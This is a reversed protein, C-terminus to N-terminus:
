IFYCMCYINEDNEIIKKNSRILKLIKKNYELNDNKRIKDILYLKRPDFFGRAYCGYNYCCSDCEYLHSNPFVIYRFELFFDLHNYKIDVHDDRVRDSNKTIKIIKNIHKIVKNYKKSLIMSFEIENKYKIIIRILDVPLLRIYKLYM